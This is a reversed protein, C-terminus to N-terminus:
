YQYNTGITKAIFHDTEFLRYFEIVDFSNLKSTIQHLEGGPWLIKGQWSVKYAVECNQKIVIVIKNTKVMSLDIACDASLYLCLYENNASAIFEDAIGIFKEALISDKKSILVWQAGDFRIFENLEQCFFLMGTKPALVQWGSSESLIYCINNKNEQNTLIYKAGMEFQEPIKDIFGKIYSNCFGDLKLIAENFLIEKNIQLPAMLDIAHYLTQM